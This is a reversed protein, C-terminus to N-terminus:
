TSSDDTNPTAARPEPTGGGYAVLVYCSIKRPVIRNTTVSREYSERYM